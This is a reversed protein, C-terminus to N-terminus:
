RDEPREEGGGMVHMCFLFSNISFVTMTIFVTSSAWRSSGDRVTTYFFNYKLKVIVWYAGSQQPTVSRPNAEYVGNKVTQPCRRPTTLQVSAGSHLM